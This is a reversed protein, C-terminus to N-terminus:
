EASRKHQENFWATANAQAMADYDLTVAVPPVTVTVTPQLKYNARMAAFEPGTLPIHGGYRASYLSALEGTTMTRPYEIWNEGGEGGTACITGKAAKGGVYTSTDVYNTAMKNSKGIPAALNKQIHQYPDILPQVGWAANETTGAGCHLHDGTTAAGTQGTDYEGVLGIVTVLRTVRTGITLASPRDMHAYSWFIGDDNKVGVVWGLTSSYQNIVVVGDAVAYIKTGSTKVWDSGRHTTGDPRPNGFPDDAVYGNPDPFPHSYQIM